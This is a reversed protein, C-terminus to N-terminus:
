DHRRVGRCVGAGAEALGIPIDIAIVQPRPQRDVIEGATACLWWLIRGTDLDKAMVVWGGRCGDVGCVFHSGM